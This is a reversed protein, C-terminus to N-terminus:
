VGMSGPRAHRADFASPLLCEAPSISDDCIQGTSCVPPTRNCSAAGAADVCQRYQCVAGDPCTTADAPDCAPVCVNARPSDFGPPTCVLGNSCAATPFPSADPVGCRPRCEWDHSYFLVGGFVGARSPACALGAQCEWELVCPAGLATGGPPFCLLRGARPTCLEEVQCEIGSRGCEPYCVGQDGEHDISCGFFAPCTGNEGAPTGSAGTTCRHLGVASNCAPVLM